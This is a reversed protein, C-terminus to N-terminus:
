ETCSFNWQPTGSYPTSFLKSWHLIVHSQIYLVALSKHWANRNFLLFFPLHFHLHLHLHLLSTFQFQLFHFEHHYCFYFFFIFYFINLITGEYRASGKRLRKRGSTAEILIFIYFFLFFLFFIVEADGM